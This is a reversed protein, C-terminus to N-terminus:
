SFLSVRWLSSWFPLVSAVLRMSACDCHASRLNLHLVAPSNRKDQREVQKDFLPQTHNHNFTHGLKNRANQTRENRATPRDSRAPPRAPPNVYACECLCAPLRDSEDSCAQNGDARGAQGSQSRSSQGRIQMECGTESKPATPMCLCVSLCMLLCGACRDYCCSCSCCCCCRCCAAPM